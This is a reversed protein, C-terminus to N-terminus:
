CNTQSSIEQLIESIEAESQIHRALVQATAELVRNSFLKAVDQRLGQGIYFKLLAECSMDRSDAIKKLSELTDKPIELSVTEHSRPRLQLTFEEEPNNM